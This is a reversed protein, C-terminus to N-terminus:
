VLLRLDDLDYMGRRDEFDLSLIEILGESVPALEVQLLLADSNMDYM